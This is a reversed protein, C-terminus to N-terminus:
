FLDRHFMHRNYFIKWFWFQSVSACSLISLPTNIKLKFTYKNQKIIITLLSNKGSREGAQTLDIIVDSFYVEREREYWSSLIRLM